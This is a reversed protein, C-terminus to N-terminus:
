GGSDVALLYALVEGAPANGALLAAFAADGLLQEGLAVGDACYTRYLDLFRGNHAFDLSLRRCVMLAIQLRQLAPAPGEVQPLREQMYLNPVEVRTAGGYPDLAAFRIRGYRGMVLAGFCQICPELTTYVTLSDAPREQVKLLANIEAHALHHGNVCEESDDAYVSNQGTAVCAGRDNMVACGIPISGRRYAQIAAEFAIQFGKELM